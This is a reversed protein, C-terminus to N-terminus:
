AGARQRWALYSYGVSLLAAGLGGILVAVGSLSAPLLISALVILLGAAFFLRGGIRHTRRWVEPDSLTWPTRIGIFWNPKVRGLENGLVIFLLGTSAGIIQPVSVPWGLATGLTAVYLVAMFLALANLFLQYTGSFAPYSARRPDIRPLVLMLLWLGATIAPLLLVAWSRSMTDNVQGNIDWHSPVRAPLRGYVALGFILMAVIVAPALWKSRMILV